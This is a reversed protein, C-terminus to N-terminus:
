ERKFGEIQLATKNKLHQSIAFALTELDYFSYLGSQSNIIMKKNSANVILLTHGKKDLSYYSLLFLTQPYSQLFRYISSATAIQEDKQVDDIFAYVDPTTGLIEQYYDRVASPQFIVFRGTKEDRYYTIQHFAYDHVMKLSDSKEMIEEYIQKCGSNLVEVDDLINKLFFMAFGSCHGFLEKPDRKLGREELKKGTDVARDGALCFPCEKNTVNFSKLFYDLLYPEEHRKHKELKQLHQELISSELEDSSFIQSYSLILFILFIM